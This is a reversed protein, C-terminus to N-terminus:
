SVHTIKIDSAYRLTSYLEFILFAFTELLIQLFVTVYLHIFDEQILVYTNSFWKCAKKKM